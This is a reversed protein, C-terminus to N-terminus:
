DRLFFFYVYHQASNNNTPRFSESRMEACIKLLKVGTYLFFFGELNKYELLDNEM